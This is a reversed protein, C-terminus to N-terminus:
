VYLDRVNYLGSTNLIGIEIWNKENKCHTCYMIAVRKHIIFMKDVLPHVAGFSILLVVHDMKLLWKRNYKKLSCGHIIQLCQIKLLKEMQLRRWAFLILAESEDHHIPCLFVCGQYDSGEILRYWVYFMNENVDCFESSDAVTFAYFLKM